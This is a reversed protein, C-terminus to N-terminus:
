RYKVVLTKLASMEDMAYKVGERGFGSEKIGGYPFNDIRLTPYDNVIVGGVELKEFARGIIRVDNTFVGAQLGYRTANAREFGEDPSDVAVITTVPGFVEESEVKMAATTQTLLMPEIVNGVRANGHLLTAGGAVAEAIWAMIRDASKSDIVPGVDTEEDNPDGVKLARTERLLAEVFADYCERVVYIRQVKICVQGAQGFGGIACRKAAWDIDADACVIAAANGGLELAVRKRGAISKLHWGVASSGTFSFMAIREDTALVQAVPVPAHVVTLAERPWGAKHVIKALEFATLPAQPPAKLVMPNGVALAPALKHAVLNLPFNFPSIAGIVGIPRRVVLATYGVGSATVDMPLISGSERSVEDAALSFTSIAREVEIKAFRRPKGSEAIMLDTLRSMNTRLGDVIRHLIAQREFRPMERLAPAVGLAAVIAADLDEATSVEVTGVTDGNYPNSVIEM